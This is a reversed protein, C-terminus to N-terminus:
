GGNSRLPVMKTQPQQEGLAYRRVAEPSFRLLGGVRLYPLDGLSVHLYVWSASVGLYEVVDAVKWLRERPTAVGQESM